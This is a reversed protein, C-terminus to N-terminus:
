APPGSLEFEPLPDTFWKWEQVGLEVEEETLLAGDLSKTIQDRDLETGIFVIEQRRDGYSEDWIDLILQREAEDKPWFREGITCWWYGIGSFSSSSGALQYLGVAEPRSALWFYGKARLVGEPAKELFEAFREPHFPRRAKYVFSNIGYEDSESKEDGRMVQMWGTAAQAETLDFLGTNLVENLPVKGFEAEIMKARTNLSRIAGKLKQKQEGTVQDIKNIVIVDAFEVQDVLLDAITREDDEGLEMGVDKLEEAKKVQQLYDPASVVTVMTDLKSVESLSQGEEDTFEFTEAVPLPESIGTSEILLYDFRGEKALDAVEKLLDERLTCCICGNSMEVMKEETRSLSIEGNKVIGADVNVESMDNVIVAVKLGER